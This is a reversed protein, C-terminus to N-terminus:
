WVNVLRGVVTNSYRVLKKATGHFELWSGLASSTVTAIATWPSENIFALFTGTLGGLFILLQGATRLRYYRPLRKQYFKLTPKVRFAIYDEPSLPSHHNDGPICANQSEPPMKM